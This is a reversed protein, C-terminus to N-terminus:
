GWIAAELSAAARMLTLDELRPALLQLGVPLTAGNEVAVLGAPVSAAPVGAMNAVYTFQVWGPGLVSRGRVPPALDATVPCALLDFREWVRALALAVTHCADEAALHAAATLRGARGLLGLLPPEFRGPVDLTALAREADRRIGTAVLAMWDGVPDAPLVDDVQEVRAGLGALAHAAKACVERVPETPTGYGLTPSWAVRLGDLPGAAAAADAFSGPRPVAYLDRQSPGAVADLALAVDAFRAAMPGRTSLHGWPPPTDDGSPVVGPTPKFGALGCCSSPIRISGGGDSGTALPVLGAAVAAASGGSSGGPTRGPAWPNRTPGFLPNDTEGTWGYAPTNTKGVVIAGAAKLRALHITDKAAPPASALAPDGNTTRLGEADELDKVALPIGALPGPDEGRALADALGRARDMARDGDLAVFANLEGDAAEIARLSAEVLEVPSLEGARVRAALAGPGEASPGRTHIAPTPRV